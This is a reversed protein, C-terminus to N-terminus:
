KVSLKNRLIRLNLVDESNYELLTKLAAKNNNNKYEHWLRVAMFGDISCLRRGIGLRREVAKLGGKLNNRWCNYMLDTHRFNKKLDIGLKASIFPLDFRSGNYSYLEEVYRLTDLLNQATLTNEYLQVVRCCDQKETAIGILTLDCYCSSFGTTEIDLYARYKTPDDANLDTKTKNGKTERM